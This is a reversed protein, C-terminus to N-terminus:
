RVLGFAECYGSPSDRYIAFRVLDAMALNQRLRGFPRQRSSNAVGNRMLKRMRQSESRRFQTNMKRQALSVFCRLAIEDGLYLSFRFRQRRVEQYGAGGQPQEEM